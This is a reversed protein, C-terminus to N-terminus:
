GRTRIARSRRRRRALVLLATAGFLLSGPGSEPMSAQHCGCGATDAPPAIPESKTCDHTAGVCSFGDACQNSTDCAMLCRNTAPDCSFTGCPEPPGHSKVVTDGDCMGLDPTCKGDTCASALDCDDNTSCTILCDGSTPDCAFGKCDTVKRPGCVGDALGTDVARCANCAGTCPKDCCVGGVCAGSVCESSTGCAVSPGLLRWVEASALVNGGAALVGGGPLLAAVHDMRAENLPAGATWAGPLAILETTELQTLSKDAGGIVLVSGNPLTLARHETRAQAMTPGSTWVGGPTLLETTSLVGGDSSRGGVVFVQANVGAGVLHTTHNFRGQLLDPGPTWTQNSVQYVDTSATSGSAYGGVVFIDGSPLLTATHDSRSVSMTGAASWTGAPNFLEASDLYSKVGYGGAVLAGGGPLATLTHSRRAIAMTGASHWKTGAAPDLIEATDLINVGWSGGAVLVRGDSLLAAAHQTRTVSLSPGMAWTGTGPDYLETSSLSILAKEGGVVLVRGDNLATATAFQRAHAMSDTTMWQPDLLAPYRVDAGDWTVSLECQCAGGASGDACPAVTPRGWPAAPSEDFACGRVALLAEHSAGDSDILFPPAVRLRPAGGSDLLELTNATLRLGSVRTTTFNLVIHEHDPRQEFLVFDETGGPTAARFLSAGETTADDYVTIGDAFSGPQDRAGQLTFAVSLASEADEIRVPGSAREPLDIRPGPRSRAAGSRAADTPLPAWSGREFRRQVDALKSRTASLTASAARSGRGPAAVSSDGACGLGTQTAWLLGFLSLARVTSPSM